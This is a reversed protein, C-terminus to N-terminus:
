VAAPNEYHVCDNDRWVEVINDGKALLRATHLAKVVSTPAVLILSPKQNAKLIRVEFAHM